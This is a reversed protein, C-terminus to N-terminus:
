RARKRRSWRVLSVTLGLIVAIGVVAGAILGAGFMDGGYNGNGTSVIALCTIFFSIGAAFAVAIVAAFTGLFVAVHDFWSPPGPRRGSATLTRILAITGPVALVVALGPAEHAVGLFVAILAILLMLSNLRFTPRRMAEPEASPKPPVFESAGVLSQGCLFCRSAGRHNEASCIPCLVSGADTPSM